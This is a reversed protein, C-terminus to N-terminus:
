GAKKKGGEGGQPTPDAIARLADWKAGETKTMFAKGFAEDALAALHEAERFRRTGLSVAVEAGRPWGPLRRRWYYVNRKRTLHFGSCHQSCPPLM